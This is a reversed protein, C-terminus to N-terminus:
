VSYITPLTLHTYSVTEMWSHLLTEASHTLTGKFQLHETSKGVYQTPMVILKLESPTKEAARRCMEEAITADTSVPLHPGHQEIAGLPILAVTKNPDLNDFDTTSLDNWFIVRNATM